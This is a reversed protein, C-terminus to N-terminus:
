GGRTVTAVAAVNGRLRKRLYGGGGVPVRFPPLLRFDLPLWLVLIIAAMRLPAKLPDTGSRVMAVTLAGPLGIYAAYKWIFSPELAGNACVATRDLFDSEGVEGRRPLSLVITTDRSRRSGRNRTGPSRRLNGAKLGDRRSRAEVISDATERSRRNAAADDSEM